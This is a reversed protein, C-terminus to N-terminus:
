EQRKPLHLMRKKRSSEDIFPRALYQAKLTLKQLNFKKPVHVGGQLCWVTRNLSLVQVLWVSIDKM